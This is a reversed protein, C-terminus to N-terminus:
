RQNKIWEPLMANISGLATGQHFLIFDHFKRLDFMEGLEDKAQKRMKKIAVKGVLYNLVQGRYATARSAESNHSYEPLVSHQKHYALAQEVTWGDFFYRYTLILRMSRVRVWELYGIRELPTEYFGLDDAVEEMYFAWGESRDPHYQYNTLKDERKPFDISEGDKCFDLHHGPIGEHIMLSALAYKMSPAKGNVNITCDNYSESFRDTEFDLDQINPTSTMKSTVKTVFKETRVVLSDLLSLYEDADTYNLQEERISELYSNMEKLTLNPRKLYTALTAIMDKETRELEELGIELIERPRLSLGAVHSIVSSVCRKKVSVPLSFVSLSAREKLVTLAAILNEVAPKLIQKYENIFREKPFDGECSDCQYRLAIEDLFSDLGYLYNNELNFISDELSRKSPILYIEISKKAQAEYDNALLAVNRLAKSIFEYSTVTKPSNDYNNRYGINNLYNFFNWDEVYSWQGVKCENFNIHQNELFGHLENWLVSNKDDKSVLELRRQLIEIKSIYAKSDESTRGWLNIESVEDDTEGVFISLELLGITEDFIEFFVEDKYTSTSANVSAYSSFIFLISVLFKM